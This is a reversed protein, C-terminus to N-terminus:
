STDEEVRILSIYLFWFYLFMKFEMNSVILLFIPSKRVTLRPPVKFTCFVRGSDVRDVRIGRLAYCEYFSFEGRAGAGARLPPFDLSSVWDSEEQNLELFAKAKEM